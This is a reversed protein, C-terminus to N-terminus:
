GYKSSQQTKKKDKHTVGNVDTKKPVELTKKALEDVEAWSPTSTGSTPNKYPNDTQALLEAATPPDPYKPASGGGGICM